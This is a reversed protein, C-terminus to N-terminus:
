YNALDLPPEPRGEVLEECADDQIVYGVAEYGRVRKSFMASLVPVCGDVYDYVIVERKNDYLRHLRGVYEDPSSKATVARQTKSVDQAFVLPVTTETQRIELRERLRRNEERLRECEALAEALKSKTSDSESM